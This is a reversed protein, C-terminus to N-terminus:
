RKFFYIRGCSQKIHMNNCNQITCITKLINKLNNSKTKANSLNWKLFLFLMINGIKGAPVISNTPISSSEEAKDSKRNPCIKSYM